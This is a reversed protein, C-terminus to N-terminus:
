QSSGHALSLSTHGEVLYSFRLRASRSRFDLGVGEREVKVSQVLQGLCCRGRYPESLRQNVVNLQRNEGSIILCMTPNLHCMCMCTYSSLPVGM